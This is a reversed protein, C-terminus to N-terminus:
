KDTIQTRQRQVVKERDTFIGFSIIIVVNNDFMEVINIM